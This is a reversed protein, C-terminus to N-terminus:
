VLKGTFMVQRKQAGKNIVKDISIKYHSVCVTSLPKMHSAPRCKVEHKKNLKHLLLLQSIHRLLLSHHVTDHVRVNNQKGTTCAAILTLIKIDRLYVVWTMIFGHVQLM